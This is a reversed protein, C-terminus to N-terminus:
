LLLLLLFLRLGLVLGVLRCGMLGLGVFGGFVIRHFSLLFGLDLGLGLLGLRDGVGVVFLLKVLFILVVGLRLFLGLEALVFRMVEVTLLLGVLVQAV